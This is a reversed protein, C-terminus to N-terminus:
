RDQYMRYIAHLACCYPWFQYNNLAYILKTLVKSNLMSWNMVVLYFMRILIPVRGFLMMTFSLHPLQSYYM